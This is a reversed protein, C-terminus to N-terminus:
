EPKLGRQTSEPGNAIGFILNNAEDKVAGLKLALKLGFASSDKLGSMVVPYKKWLERLLAEGHGRRRVNHNVHMDYVSAAPGNCGPLEKFWIIGIPADFGKEFFSLTRIGTSDIEQYEFRDRENEPPM